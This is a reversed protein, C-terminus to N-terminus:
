RMGLKKVAEIDPTALENPRINQNLLNNRLMTTYTPGPSNAIGTSVGKSAGYLGLVAGGKMGVGVVKEGVTAGARTPLIGRIMTRGVAPVTKFGVNSIAKAASSLIGSSLKVM